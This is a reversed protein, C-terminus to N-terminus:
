GGEGAALLAELEEDTLEELAAMEDELGELIVDDIDIGLEAALRAREAAVDDAEPVPINGSRLQGDKPQQEAESAAAASSAKGDASIAKGDAAANGAFARMMAAQWVDMVVFDDLQGELMAAQIAAGVAVAQM